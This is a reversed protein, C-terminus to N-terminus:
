RRSAQCMKMNGIGGVIMCGTQGITLNINYLDKIKHILVAAFWKEM